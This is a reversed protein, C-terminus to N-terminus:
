KQTPLLKKAVEINEGADKWFFPLVDIISMGGSSFTAGGEGLSKAADPYRATIWKSIEEGPYLRKAGGVGLQWLMGAETYRGLAVGLARTIEPYRKSEPGEQFSKFEFNVDGLAATYDRYNIGIETRADLKAFAKVVDRASEAHVACGALLIAMAIAFTRRM